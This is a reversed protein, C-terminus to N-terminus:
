LPYLSHDIKGVSKIVKTLKNQVELLFKYFDETLQTMLGTLISFLSAIVPKKNRFIALIQLVLKLQIALILDNVRINGSLM